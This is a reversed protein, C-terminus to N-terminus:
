PPGAIALENGDPDLFKAFVRGPMAVEIGSSFRVGKAELERKSAKVGPVEFSIQVRPGDDDSLRTRPEDCGHLCLKSQGAAAEFQVWDPFDAVARFGLVGEYFRKARAVDTVFVILHGVPGLM